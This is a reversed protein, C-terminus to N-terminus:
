TGGHEEGSYPIETLPNGPWIRGRTVQEASAQRIRLLGIRAQSLPPHARRGGALRDREAALPLAASQAPM